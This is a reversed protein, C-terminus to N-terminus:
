FYITMGGQFLGGGSTNTRRGTGPEVFEPHRKADSDTRGRLFGLLALNLAFHRSVRFEVGVGAHGGFYHYTNDGSYPSWGNDRTVSARAWDIGFPFYVQVRSRPNVFVLGSLNLDLETRRNDYYDRGGLFDIGAEIGFYPSPKFRLGLGGGGMGTDSSGHRRDRGIIAGELRLNLGWEQRNYPLVNAPRPRYVYPPPADARGQVVVVPPAPQYVVVPPPAPTPGAANPPVPAATPTGVEVNAGGTVPAAPAAPAPAPATGPLPQLQGNASGGAAASGNANGGACFWSGPPCNSSAGGAQQPSAQAFATASFGVTAYLATGLALASFLRSRVARQKSTM